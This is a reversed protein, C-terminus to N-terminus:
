VASDERVNEHKWEVGDYAHRMGPIIRYLGWYPENMPSEGTFLLMDYLFGGFLCGFFPSVM